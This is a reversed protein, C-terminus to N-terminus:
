FQCDAEPVLQTNGIHDCTWDGRDCVPRFSATEGCCLMDEEGCVAEPVCCIFSPSGCSDSSLAFAGDVQNCGGIPACVGGQENCTDGTESAAPPECCSGPGDDFVCDADYSPLDSGGAAECQGGGVCIGGAEKCNPHPEGTDSESDSETDTDSSSDSDPETDSDPEVRTDAETDVDLETDSADTCATLALIALLITRVLM